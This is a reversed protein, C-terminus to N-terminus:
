VEMEEIWRRLDEVAKKGSEQGGEGGAGCLRKEEENPGRGWAIRCDGM